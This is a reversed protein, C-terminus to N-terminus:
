EHEHGRKSGARELRAMLWLLSAVLAGLPGYPWLVGRLWHLHSHVDLIGSGGRLPTLIGLLWWTLGAVIFGALPAFWFATWKRARLLCYAPIGFLFTGAYAVIVSLFVLWLLEAPLAPREWARFEIVPIALPAILFGITFRITDM